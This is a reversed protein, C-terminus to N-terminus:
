PTKVESDKMGRWVWKDHYENCLVCVTEIKEKDNEYLCFECGDGYKSSCILKLDALALELKIKLQANERELEISLDHYNSTQELEDILM